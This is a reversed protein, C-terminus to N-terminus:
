AVTVAIQFTKSPIYKDYMPFALKPVFRVIKNAVCTFIILSISFIIYPARLAFNSCFNKKSTEYMMRYLIQRRALIHTEQIKELSEEM